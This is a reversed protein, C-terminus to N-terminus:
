CGGIPDPCIGGQGNLALWYSYIFLGVLSWRVVFWFIDLLQENM